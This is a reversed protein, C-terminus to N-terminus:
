RKTRPTVTSMPSCPFLGLGSTVVGHEQCSLHVRYAEVGADDEREDSASRFHEPRCEAWCLQPGEDEDCRGGVHWTTPCCIEAEELFEGCAVRQVDPDHAGAEEFGAANCGTAAFLVVMTGTRILRM